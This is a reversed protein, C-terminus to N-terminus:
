VDDMMITTSFFYEHDGWYSVGAHELQKAAFSARNHERSCKRCKQCSAVMSSQQKRGKMQKQRKLSAENRCQNKNSSPFVCLMYKCSVLYTYTRHLFIIAITRLLHLELIAVHACIILIQREHDVAVLVWVFSLFMFIFHSAAGRSRTNVYHIIAGFIEGTPSPSLVSRQSKGKAQKVCRTKRLFIIIMRASLYVAATCTIPNRIRHYFYTGRWGM